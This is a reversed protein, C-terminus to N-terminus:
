SGTGATAALPAVRHQLGDSRVLTLVLAPDSRPAVLLELGRVGGWVLARDPHCDHFCSSEPREM